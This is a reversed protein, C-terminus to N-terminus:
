ISCFRVVVSLLLLFRVVVFFRAGPLLLLLRRGHGVVATIAHRRRRKERSKKHRFKRKSLSARPRIPFAIVIAALLAGYKQSPQTVFYRRKLSPPQTSSPPLPNSERARRRRGRSDIATPRPLIIARRDARRQFTREM